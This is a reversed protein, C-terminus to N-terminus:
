RSRIKKQKISKFFTRPIPVKWKESCNKLINSSLWGCMALCCSQVAWKCLCRQNLPLISAQWAPPGPEIGPRHLTNQWTLYYFHFFVCQYKLYGGIGNPTYSLHYLARKAHSLYPSRYGAGGFSKQLDSSAKSFFHSFFKKSTRPISGRVEWMSLSREVMQAVGGIINFVDLTPLHILRQESM